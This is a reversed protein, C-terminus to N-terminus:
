SCCWWCNTADYFMIFSRYCWPKPNCSNLPHQPASWFWLFFSYHAYDSWRIPCGLCALQSNRSLHLTTSMGISYDGLTYWCTLLWITWRDHLWLIAMSDVIRHCSDYRVGKSCLPNTSGVGYLGGWQCPHGESSTALPISYCQPPLWVFTPSILAWCLTPMISPLLFTCWISTLYIVNICFSCCIFQVKKQINLLTKLTM